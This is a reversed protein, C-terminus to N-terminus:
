ATLFKVFGFSLTLTTKKFKSDVLRKCKTRKQLIRDVTLNSPPFHLQLKCFCTAQASFILFIQKLGRLALEARFALTQNLAGSDNSCLNSWFLGMLLSNWGMSPGMEGRPDLMLRLYSSQM